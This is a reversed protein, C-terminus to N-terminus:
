ILQRQRYSFSINQLQSPTINMSFSLIFPGFWPIADDLQSNIAICHSEIMLLPPVTLFRWRTSIRVVSWQKIVWQRNQGNHFMCWLNSYTCWSFSYRAHIGFKIIVNTGSVTVMKWYGFDLWICYERTLALTALNWSKSQSRFALICLKTLYCKRWKAKNFFAQFWIIQFHSEAVTAM